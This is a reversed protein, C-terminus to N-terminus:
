TNEDLLGDPIEDCLPDVITFSEPLESGVFETTCIAPPGVVGASYISEDSAKTEFLMVKRRIDNALTQNDIEVSNAYALAAVRAHPDTDLRLVFYIANGDIPILERGVGKCVPCVPHEGNFSTHEDSGCGRCLRCLDGFKSIFYKDFWGQEHMM